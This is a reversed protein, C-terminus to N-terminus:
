CCCSTNPHLKDYEERARIFERESLPQGEPHERAFHECYKAYRNEGSVERLYWLIGRACRQIYHLMVSM